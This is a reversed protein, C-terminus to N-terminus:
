KKDTTIGLGFKTIHDIRRILQDVAETHSEFHKPHVPCTIVIRKALFQRTSGKCEVRCSYRDLM